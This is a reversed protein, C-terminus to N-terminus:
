LEDKRGNEPGDPPLCLAPSTGTFEYECKELEQVATIANETGCTWVLQVSRMPGNWCKTGRTYHQKGYYEPSGPSIGEADNWSAFHGLSFTSGGKNPKQKAEGFLCVEYTYDGVEKELCTGQLKKFQGDTGFWAPDFLRSLEEESSAKEDAVSRLAKEADSLAQKARSNDATEANSSAKLIGITKLWTLLSDRVTEYQPLLVDPIYASLDFLLSEEAPAGIHKDHELLLSEYDTNLLKGLSNELQEPTWMNPDEEEEEEAAEDSGLEEPTAEDDKKVDNIHPLGALYEWGRVAELVAMDQYNPNYGSRLSNLIDGLEKERELHKQHERQLSKLAFHHEMLTQYLLSQKKYELAEQSISEAREVLDKLRDVEEQKSSVAKESSAITEELRKKEKQAFALYTSRIKSGTKRLKTEAAVKARHVEGIEKCKNKCVGPREDSGDCCEPECLGDNVRSSPVSAGIHGENACYFTTNPCAGTGPEDSGDSCDCYDDNVASWAIEKSGDLCRWTPDAGKSLPTYKARLHPPVGHVNDTAALAAVPLALLIWPLM